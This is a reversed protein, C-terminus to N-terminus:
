ASTTPISVTLSELYPPLSKTMENAPEKQFSIGGFYRSPLSLQKLKTFHRFNTRSSGIQYPDIHECLRGNLDLSVLNTQVPAFTETVDRPVLHKTSKTTIQERKGPVGCEIQGVAPSRELMKEWETQDLILRHLCFNYWTKVAPAFPVEIHEFEATGERTQPSKSSTTLQPLKDFPLLKFVYRDGSVENRFYILQKQLCLQQALRHCSHGGHRTQQIVRLTELNPLYAVMNCTLHNMKGARPDCNKWRPWKVKASKVFHGRSPKHTLANLLSQYPSAEIYCYMDTVLIYRSSANPYMSRSRNEPHIGIAISHWIYPEVLANLRCNTKLLALLTHKDDKLNQIIAFCIENPMETLIGM